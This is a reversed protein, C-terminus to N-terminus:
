WEAFSGDDHERISTRWLHSEQDVRRVAFTEVGTIEM